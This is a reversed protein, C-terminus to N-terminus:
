SRGAARDLFPLGAGPGGLFLGDVGQVPGRAMSIPAPTRICHRSTLESKAMTRNM